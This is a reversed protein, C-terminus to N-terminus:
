FSKTQQLQLLMKLSKLVIQILNHGADDGGSSTRDLILLDNRSAYVFIDVGSAPIFDSAFTLTTGSATWVTEGSSNISSTVVNNLNVKITDNSANTNTLTFATTEGDGRFRDTVNSELQINFSELQSTTGSELIIADDTLSSDDLSATELQIGGGVMSVFGSAADVNTDATNATFTLEDGVEYGTGVDDVIVESVSGESIGDVQLEAFGNGINEVSIDESNSHLIGDNDLTTRAVIGELTFTVNVDRSTSVGTITEGDVFTGVISAIRLETVSDTGQQTVLSDIVVATAGSTAGTILQNIVEEGSVGSAASVRMITRQRWDGASTRMVYETPYFIEANEGLLLRMFLNHGESSGKAAYLDKINKILNRKSVGSALTEPIATMFSDRMQDLFDFLTNDVNAYELMQQISQIPNGRYETITATAGTVSGTITEGTNFLQQGSIYLFGNRSDEVLIKATANSTGGTITEGNQFKGGSGSGSETVIRDSNTEELIYATTNTEQIVFDIEASVTLRGAELFSFYDKLFEVFIPHDSQVFDPM